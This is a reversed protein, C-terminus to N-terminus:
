KEIVMKWITPLFYPIMIIFAIFTDFKSHNL